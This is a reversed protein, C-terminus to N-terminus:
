LAVGGRKTPPQPTSPPSPVRRPLGREELRKIRNVVEDLLVTDTLQPAPTPAVPALGDVYGCPYRVLSPDTPQIITGAKFSERQNHLPCRISGIDSHKFEAM